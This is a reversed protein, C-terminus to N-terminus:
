GEDEEELPPKKSDKNPVGLDEVEPVEEGVVEVEDPPNKSLRKPDSKLGLDEVLERVPDSLEPPNKELNNLLKNPLLGEDDEVDVRDPDRLEPPKKEFNNLLRKPPLGEDDDDVEDGEGEYEVPLVEEVVELPLPRRAVRKSANNGCFSVPDDDDDDDVDEDAVFVPAVAAAPKEIPERISPKNWLDPDVPVPEPLVVDGSAAGDLTNLEALCHQQEGFLMLCRAIFLAKFALSFLATLLDKAAPSRSRLSPSM